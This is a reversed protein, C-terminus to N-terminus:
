PLGGDDLPWSAESPLRGAPRPPASHGTDAMTRRSQRRGPVGGEGSWSAGDAEAGRTRVFGASALGPSRLVGAPHPLGCRSSSWPGGGVGILRGSGPPWGRGEAPPTVPLAAVIEKNARFTMEGEAKFVLEFSAGHGAATERPLRRQRGALLRQRDPPVERLSLRPPPRAQSLLAM